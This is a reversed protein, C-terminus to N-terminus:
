WMADLCDAGERGTQLSEEEQVVARAVARFFDQLYPSIEDFKGTISENYM